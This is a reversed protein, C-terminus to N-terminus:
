GSCQDEPCMVPWWSHRAHSPTWCLLSRSLEAFCVPSPLDSVRYTVALANVPGTYAENPSSQLIQRRSLVRSAHASRIGRRGQRGGKRLWAAMARHESDSLPVMEMDVQLSTHDMSEVLRM